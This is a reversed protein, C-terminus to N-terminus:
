RGTTPSHMVQVDCLVSQTDTICSTTMLNVRVSASYTCAHLLPNAQHFPSALQWAVRPADGTTPRQLLLSAQADEDHLQESGLAEDGAGSCDVILGHWGGHSAAAAAAAAEQAHPEERWTVHPASQVGPGAAPELQQGCLQSHQGQLLQQQQQPEPLTSGDPQPSSSLGATHWAAADDLCESPRQGSFQDGDATHYGASGDGEALLETCGEAGEAAHHEEEQQAAQEQQLLHEPIGYPYTTHVAAAAAAEAADALQAATAVKRPQLQETQLDLAAKRQM